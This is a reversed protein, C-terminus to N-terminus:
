AAHIKFHGSFYRPLNNVPPELHAAQKLSALLAGIKLLMGTKFIPM